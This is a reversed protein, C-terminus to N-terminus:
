KSFTFVGILGRASTLGGDLLAGEVSKWKYSSFTTNGGGGPAYYPFYPTIFNM